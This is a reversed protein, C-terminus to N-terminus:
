GSEAPPDQETDAAAPVVPAAPAASPVDDFPEEEIGRLTRVRDVVMALLSLVIVAVFEVILLRNGNANLWQAVPANPDGFLCAILALITLIFVVTAPVVLRFLLAPKTQPRKM